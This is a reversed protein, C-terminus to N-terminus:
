SNDKSKMEASKNVLLQVFRAINHFNQFAYKSFCTKFIELFGKQFTLKLYHQCPNLNNSCNTKRNLFLM